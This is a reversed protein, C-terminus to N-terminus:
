EKDSNTSKASVEIVVREEPNCYETKKGHYEMHNTCLNTAKVAKLVAKNLETENMQKDEDPIKEMLAKIIDSQIIALEKYQQLLYETETM